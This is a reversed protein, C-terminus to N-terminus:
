PNVWVETQASDGRLKLVELRTISGDGKIIRCKVLSDLVVKPFNDVDGRKGKPLTIAIKVSEAVILSGCHMAAYIKVLNRFLNADRTKYHRGDRTHRVYSNASPPYAPISIHARRKATM